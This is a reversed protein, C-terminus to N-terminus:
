DYTNTGKPKTDFPLRMYQRTSRDWRLISFRGRNYQAAVAAVLAIAAPDGLALISDDDCYDKLQQRVRAVAPATTFEAGQRGFLPEQLMGYASAPSIDYEIWEGTEPNRRRPVQVVYVRGM